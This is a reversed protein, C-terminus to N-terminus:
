IETVEVEPELPKFRKCLMIVFQEINYPTMQALKNNTFSCVRKYMPFTSDDYIVEVIIKNSTWLSHVM